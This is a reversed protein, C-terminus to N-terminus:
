AAKTGLDQVTLLCNVSLSHAPQFERGELDFWFIKEYGELLGYLEERVRFLLGADTGLLWDMQALYLTDDFDDAGISKLFGAPLSDILCTANHSYNVFTKRLENAVADPMQDALKCFKHYLIADNTVYECKPLYDSISDVKVAEFTPDQVYANYDMAVLARLNFLLSHLHLLNQTTQRSFQVEFNYLLLQSMKKEFIDITSVLSTLESFEIGNSTVSQALVENFSNEFNTMVSANSNKYYKKIAQIRSQSRVYLENHPELALWCQNAFPYDVSPSAFPNKLNQSLHILSLGALADAKYHFPSEPKTNKFQQNKWSVIRTPQLIPGTSTQIEFGMWIQNKKM